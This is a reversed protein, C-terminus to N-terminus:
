SIWISGISKDPLEVCVLNKNTPIVVRVRALCHNYSAEGRELRRRLSTRTTKVTIMRQLVNFFRLFFILNDGGRGSVSLVAGNSATDSFILKPITHSGFWLFNKTNYRQVRLKLTFYIIIRIYLVCVLFQARPSNAVKRFSPTLPSFVFRTKRMDRRIEFFLVPIRLTKAKFNVFM